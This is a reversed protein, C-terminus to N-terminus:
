QLLIQGGDCGGVCCSEIRGGEYEMGHIMKARGKQLESGSDCRLRKEREREGGRGRGRHAEENADRSSILMEGGGDIRESEHM